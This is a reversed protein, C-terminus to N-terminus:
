STAKVDVFQTSHGLKEGREELGIVINYALESESEFMQGVLHDRKLHQWESEILNMESCYPALFFFYLGQAEWEVQHQQVLKSTHISGNDQVIVRIKGTKKLIQAAEKAQANIMAVYDPSKFGGIVLAYVFTLLPQWLGLISIRKGRKPTQEQRKQQGQFYYSYTVPSWLSCGSEDAYFLDIEGAAAAMQLMDLDSQKTARQQPDQRQHHSHRTRKWIM